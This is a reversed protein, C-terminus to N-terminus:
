IVNNQMLAIFYKVLALVHLECLLLQVADGDLLCDISEEVDAQVAVETSGSFCSKAVDASVAFGLNWLMALSCSYALFQKIPPSPLKLDKVFLGFPVKVLFYLM